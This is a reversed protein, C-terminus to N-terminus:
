NNQIFKGRVPEGLNTLKENEYYLQFKAPLSLAEKFNEANQLHYHLHAESSNGSNGCLGLIEGSLVEQGEKVQISDKKFHCFVSFEGNHHDLLVFNGFPQKANMKGPINDEVGDFVKVVTASAPALIRKGFCYYDENKSGDGSYTKDNKSMVFDYAFRQSPYVVHYNQRETRGGWYVFWKGAFPLRLRTKTAYESFPSQPEDVYDGLNLGTIIGNKNFSLLLYMPTKVKEYKSVREYSLNSLFPHIKEAKVAEEKGWSKSVSERVKKFAELTMAKKMAPSFKFYLEKLEGRFFKDALSRGTELEAENAYSVACLAMATFLFFVSKVFINIKM